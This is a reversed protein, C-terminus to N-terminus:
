EEGKTPTETPEDALEPAILLALATLEHPKAASKPEAYYLSKVRSEKWGLVRSLAAIRERHDSVPWRAAAYSRLDTRAKKLAIDTEEARAPISRDPATPLDRLLALMSFQVLKPAFFFWEGSFRQESFIDHLHAEVERGGPMHGIFTVDDSPIAAMIANIRERLNSSYGIKVLGAHRVFYISM